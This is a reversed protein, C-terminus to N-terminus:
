YKYNTNRIGTQQPDNAYEGAMQCKNKSWWTPVHVLTYGWCSVVSYWHIIKEIYWLCFLFMSLHHQLGRYADVLPPKVRNKAMPVLTLTLNPPLAKRLKQDDTVKTKPRLVRRRANPCATARQPMAIPGLWQWTFRFLFHNVGTLNLIWLQIHIVYQFISYHPQTVM